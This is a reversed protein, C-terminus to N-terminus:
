RVCRPGDRRRQRLLQAYTHLTGVFSARGVSPRTSISTSSSGDSAETGRDRVRADDRKFENIYKKRLDDSEEIVCGGWGKKGSRSPWTVLELQGDHFSGDRLKISKLRQQWTRM